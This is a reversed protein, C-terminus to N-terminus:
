KSTSPKPKSNPNRWTAYRGIEAIPYNNGEWQVSVVHDSDDVFLTRRLWLNVSGGGSTNYNSYAVDGYVNTTGTTYEPLDVNKAQYWTYMTRGGIHQETTPPGWRDIVDNIHAGQWSEMIEDMKQGGCGVTCLCVIIVAILALPNPTSRRHLM